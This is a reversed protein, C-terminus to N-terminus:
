HTQATASAGGTANPHGKTRVPCKKLQHILSEGTGPKHKPDTIWENVAVDLPKPIERDVLLDSMEAALEELLEETQQRKTKQILACKWVEEILKNGIATDPAIANCWSEVTEKLKAPVKRLKMGDRLNRRLREPDDSHALAQTLGEVSKEPAKEASKADTSPQVPKPGQQVTLVIPRDGQAMNFISSLNKFAVDGDNDVEFRLSFKTDAKKPKDCVLKVGRDMSVTPLTTLNLSQQDPDEFHNAVDNMLSKAQETQKRGVGDEWKLTMALEMGNAAATVTRANKEKM